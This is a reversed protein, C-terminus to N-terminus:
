SRIERSLLCVKYRIYQLQLFSKSNQFVFVQFLKKRKRYSSSKTYIIDSRALPYKSTGELRWNCDIWGKLNMM